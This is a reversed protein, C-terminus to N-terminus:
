VFFVWSLILVLGIIKRYIRFRCHCELGLVLFCGVALVRVLQLFRIRIRGIGSELYGVRESKRRPRHGSANKWGRRRNWDSNLSSQFPDSGMRFFGFLGLPSKLTTLFSKNIHNQIIQTFIIYDICTNLYLSINTCLKKNNKKLGM